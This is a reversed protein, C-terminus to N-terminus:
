AQRPPKPPPPDILLAVRSMFASDQGQLLLKMAEAVAPILRDLWLTEDPRFDDLVYNLVLDRQGPHGVGLRVRWYDQGLHADISRLGNHGAAGGGRKVRLKAPPLDLEDHLVIVDAPEIKYFRAAPAVSTGSENMFTMPKLVLAKEGEIEGEAILGHFKERPARFGHRRIIADAAMFGINHRTQEYRPGPNGLGVILKM